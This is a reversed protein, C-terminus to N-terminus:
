KTLLQTIKEKGKGVLNRGQETMLASGVTSLLTMMMGSNKKKSGTLQRYVLYGLAVGGGILLAKKVLGQMKEGLVLAENNLAERNEMVTNQLSDKHSNGSTDPKM